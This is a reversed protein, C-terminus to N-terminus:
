VQVPYYYARAADERIDIRRDLTQPWVYFGRLQGGNVDPNLLIGMELWTEKGTSAFSGNVLEYPYGVKPAGERGHYSDVYSAGVAFQVPTPTQFGQSRLYYPYLNNWNWGNIIRTGGLGKGAHYKLERDGANAQSTTQYQWDIPTNFGRGFGVVSTVNPNNHEDKGAEIVAVTVDPIESLRSAVTLDCTGGGIIVFDYRNPTLAQACVSATMLSAIAKLLFAIVITRM